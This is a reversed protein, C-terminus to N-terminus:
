ITMMQNKCVNDFHQSVHFRWLIVSINNFTANFLMVSIYMSNKKMKSKKKYLASSKLYQSLVKIRQYWNEHNREFANIGSILPYTEDKIHWKCNHINSQVYLTYIREPINNNTYLCIFDSYLISKCCFMEVLLIFNTCRM